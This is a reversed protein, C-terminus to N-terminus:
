ARDRAAPELQQGGSAPSRNASLVAIQQKLSEVYADVANFEDALELGFDGKRFEIPAVYEGAALARLSRRMRYIPGVIRNSIQLVDLLMIPLLMAAAVMVTGYQSWLQDFRFFSFFSGDPANVINWALLILASTAICLCWYVVVRVMLTRQVKPDVFLRKRPTLRM